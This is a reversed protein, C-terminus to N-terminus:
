PPKCNQTTYYQNSDDEGGFDRQKAVDNTHHLCVTGQDGHALYAAALRFLQLARTSLTREFSGFTILRGGARGM